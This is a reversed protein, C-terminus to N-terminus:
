EYRLAVMPDVKTARRAPLYSALLAVGVLVVAVAGYTLPDTPKVGVLFEAILRTLGISLAVGIAVGILTLKLGLKGVLALVDSPLAGLAIRIGFEHMRESVFYSMVGYIGVVALLVAIGAFIALTRMYFQWDGMSDSVVQDMTTVDTMPIDPHLDGVAKKLVVGFDAEHGSLSRATRVVLNQDLHDMAAGGPFITSHQLYSTYVFPYPPEGLSQRVDGVVGVIQRPHDEDIPWPEYRVLLQQGIPDENPFYKHAFAENIIVTWPATQNDHEDLYRGKRLPIRLARFLDASVEVFGADPRRDPPPAPKGLISFSYREAGRLPLGSTVAASEVGPLASVKALLQQYFADVVPLPKEMDGGPIRTLYKGGQEPVQLSATAVNTTDFGPNVRHLRLVTNIMLGAGTLLVMALAVESVALAHRTLGRSATATRGEGERLVLNLDARSAQIAPALGFLFATLVSIGSTFLLVRPDLKISEKLPFDMWHFIAIGVFTLVIGLTGGLLALLGSEAFLQQILRRRGSGLASRLAYEKRRVETRSQLLNAVNVCAILLVFAVAGFLPYLYQGFFGYLQQHLPVLKKGVGKNTAPYAQELRKAIVDMEVQAEALTVGPKLRAVPMLWHDIRASYRANAPDIPIWLDIPRGYFPAFGAPMVGVVTSLSGDVTFTRGLINPDRNFKRKWFSDSIVVTESNDQMEEPFFIRGMIPKVGLVSFFTATTYQVHIPEPQGLGSLNSGNTNSTLAIEEFVHNQKKWDVVEAIPPPELSDPHGQETQWISVLREPHDYPMPRYLVANLVSFITSNAGIGLGLSLVVVALFGLDRSSQRFAYRIDQALGKM